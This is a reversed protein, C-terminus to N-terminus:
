RFYMAYRDYVLKGAEAREKTFLADRHYRHVVHTFSTKAENLLLKWYGVQLWVMAKYWNETDGSDVLTLFEALTDQHNNYRSYLHKNPIGLADRQDLTFMPIRPNDMSEKDWKSFQTPDASLKAMAEIYNLFPKYRATLEAKVKRNITHKYVPVPNLYIATANNERLIFVAKRDSNYRLQLPYHGVVESGDVHSVAAVWDENHRRQINLGAIRQIRERCAAGINQEIAVRGDPYYALLAREKNWMSGICVAKDERMYISLWKQDRRGAPKTGNADGRIPIVDNFHKLAAAYSRLQPLEYYTKYNLM